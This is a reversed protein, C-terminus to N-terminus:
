AAAPLARRNSNRLPEYEEGSVWLHHLLVALKRGTAVIARKKGSKGGREGTETGLAGSIVTSGLHGWFTSRGKYWCPECIPISKRVSTCRPSARAPTRRGPQVGLYCGVDRSKGFRHPAELTLLFTLAILTGVRKV